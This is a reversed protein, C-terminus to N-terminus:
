LHHAITCHLKYTTSTLGDLTYPVSSFFRISRNIWCMLSLVSHKSSWKGHLFDSQSLCCTHFQSFNNTSYRCRYTHVSYSKHHKQRHISTLNVSGCCFAFTNECPIHQFFVSPKFPIYLRSSITTSSSKLTLFVIIIIGQYRTPYHSVLGNVYAALL